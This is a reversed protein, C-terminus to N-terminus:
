IKFEWDELRASSKRKKQIQKGIEDYVKWKYTKTEKALKKVEDALTIGVREKKWKRKNM